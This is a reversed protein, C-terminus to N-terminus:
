VVETVVGHEVHFMRSEKTHEIIPMLSKKEISTLFMQVNMGLLVDLLRLRNDTDLEAAVDDILLICNKGTKKNYLGAQALLLCTVLIKQQGRSIRENALVGDVQVSIDARQPGVGTFGRDIDTQLSQQLAQEFTLGKSWGALYSLKIDMDGLVPKIFDIVLGQLENIYAQRKDNLIHGSDLLEHDWVQVLKKPSHQRLATNRQKLATQYRQWVPYFSHEVHFVGWDLFRRRYTPGEELLQHSNPHIVQLPLNYVLNAVKTVKQENIRIQVTKATKKLGFPVKQGNELIQQAYVSLEKQGKQIIKDFRNTRFSSARGLYYIAELLSTKGSANQGTILNLDAAPELDVKELNRFNRVGLKILPM